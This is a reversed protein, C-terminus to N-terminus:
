KPNNLKVLVNVRATTKPFRSERLPTTIGCIRSTEKPQRQCTLRQQILHQSITMASKTNSITTVTKKKTM